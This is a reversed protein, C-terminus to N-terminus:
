NKKVARRRPKPMEDEPFQGLGIKQELEQPTDAMGLKEYGGSVIRWLTFANKIKSTNQTINYKEDGILCLIGSGDELKPLAKIIAM